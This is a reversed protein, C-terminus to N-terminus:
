PLLQGGSSDGPADYGGQFVVVIIVAFVLLTLLLVVAGVLLLLFPLLLGGGLQLAAWQKAGIHQRHPVAYPFVKLLVKGAAAEGACDEGFHEHRGQLLHDHLDETM